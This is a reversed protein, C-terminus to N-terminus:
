RLVAKPMLGDAPGRYLKSLWGEVGGVTRKEMEWLPCDLDEGRM